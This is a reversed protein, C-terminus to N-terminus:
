GDAHGVRAPPPSSVCSLITLNSQWRAPRYPKEGVGVERDAVVTEEAKVRNDPSTETITNEM